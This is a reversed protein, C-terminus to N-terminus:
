CDAKPNQPSAGCVEAIADVNIAEVPYTTFVFSDNKIGELNVTVIGTTELVEDPIMCRYSSDLKRCANASGNYFIANITDIDDWEDGLIFHAQVYNVTGSAINQIPAIRQLDQGNSMFIVTRKNM